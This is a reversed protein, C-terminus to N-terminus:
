ITFLSFINTIKPKYHRNGASTDNEESDVDDDFSYDPYEPPASTTTVLVKVYDEASSQDLTEESYEPYSPCYDAM